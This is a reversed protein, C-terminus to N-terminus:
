CEFRFYVNWFLDSGFDWVCGVCMDEWYDEEFGSQGPRIWFGTAFCDFIFPCFGSKSINSVTGAMSGM